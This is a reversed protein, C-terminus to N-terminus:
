ESRGEEKKPKNMVIPWAIIQWGAKVQSQFHYITGVPHNARAHAVSAYPIYSYPLGRPDHIVVVDNNPESM